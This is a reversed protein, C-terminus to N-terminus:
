PNAPACNQQVIATPPSLQARLVIVSDASSCAASGGVNCLQPQNMTATPPVLQSRLIVVSDASTVRGDGTVDGCQCVDGIGDPASGVGIGGTDEQFMNATFPCNDIPDAVADTDDDTSAVLVGSGTDPAWELELPAATDANQGTSSGETIHFIQLANPVQSASGPSGFGIGTGSPSGWKSGKPM